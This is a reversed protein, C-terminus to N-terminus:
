SSCGLERKLEECEQPNEILRRLENAIPEGKAEGQLLEKVVERDAMVNVIGLFKVSMLWRAITATLWAVKYTLCYPLGLRAAELTATGSAVVGTGARQM